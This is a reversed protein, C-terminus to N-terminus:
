VYKLRVEGTDRLVELSDENSDIWMTEKFRYIDRNTNAGISAPDVWELAPLHVALLDKLSRYEALTDATEGALVIGLDNDDTIFAKM